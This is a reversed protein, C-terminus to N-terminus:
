YDSKAYVEERNSDKIAENNERTLTVGQDIYSEM